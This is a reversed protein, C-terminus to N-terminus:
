DNSQNVGNALYHGHEVYAIEAAQKRYVDHLLETTDMFLDEKSIGWIRMLRREADIHSEIQGPGIIHQINLEDRLAKSILITRHCTLPDKEACMLAITYTQIGKRIRNLGSQFGPTKEILEYRAQGNVYCCSEKRRAGLEEGLFVYAIGNDRLSNYLQDHNFHPVRRSYPQSRVDAIATVSCAHLLEVFEDLSRNSHGVTYLIGNSM